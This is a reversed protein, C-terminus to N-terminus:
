RVHAPAIRGAVEGFGLGPSCHGTIIVEDGDELYTRPSGDPTELPRQGAWTLEILSGCEEAGKGSITGSAFLDGPRVVAGNSTAHALQQAPDWYLDRANMRAISSPSLRSSETTMTVELELDLNWPAARRLYPLPEPVQEPGRVLHPRLAGAPVLWPSISTAFSKGLFPGLPQYEWRQLDRASWDNMLVFGLIHDGADGIAIAEGPPPGAGTVFALEVEIDLQRTPGFSPQTADGSPPRQGCPRTIPTGSVVVSAARGHYGVPLHRWNALLPETGPRFLRGLNSAHELSSYFDVYDGPVFPILLEADARDTLIGSRGALEHPDEISVAQAIAERLLDWRRRGVGLLSNLSPEGFVGAEIGAADLVGHEALAALDLIHDGIAVGARPAGERPVFIGYPLNAVSYPSHEPIEIWSRQEYKPRM